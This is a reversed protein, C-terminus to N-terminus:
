HKGNKDKFDLTDQVLVRAGEFHIFSRFVWNEEWLQLPRSVDCLLITVFLDRLQPGLAWFSAESIAHTWEKDGNLLGHAFCAAKFTAYNIKNVMPEKFSSCRKADSVVFDTSLYRGNVVSVDWMRGVMVIITGTVDLRLQDLFLESKAESFKDSMDQKREVESKSASMDALIEVETSTGAPSTPHNNDAALLAFLRTPKFIVKSRRANTSM